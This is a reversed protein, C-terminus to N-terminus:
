FYIYKQLIYQRASPPVYHEPYMMNRTSFTGPPPVYNAGPPVFSAGIIFIIIFSIVSVFM